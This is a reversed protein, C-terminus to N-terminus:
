NLSKWGCYTLEMWIDMQMIFSFYFEGYDHEKTDVQIFRKLVKMDAKDAITHKPRFTDEYM